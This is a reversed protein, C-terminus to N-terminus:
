AVVDVMVLVEEIVDVCVTAAAVPRCTFAGRGRWPLVAVPVVPRRATVDGVISELRRPWVAVAVPQTVSETFAVRGSVPVTAGIRVVRGPGSPM